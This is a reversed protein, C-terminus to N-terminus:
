GTATRRSQGRAGAGYSRRHPGARVAESGVSTVKLGNPSSVSIPATAPRVGTPRVPAPGTPKM